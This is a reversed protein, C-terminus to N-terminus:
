NECVILGYPIEPTALMAADDKFLLSEIMFFQGSFRPLFIQVEHNVATGPEFVRDANKESLPDYVFTGVWDSYFAIGMEYGGIWGREDWLNHEDYYAKVKENLERVPLNPRLCESVVDMVGAALNAKDAVDKPPEGVSFTRAANMHYRKHVGSVDVAVTEGAKLKKRTAVAHAANSKGGSLVPMMMAQLEGGAACLARIVEGQVELETVGPRIVDRAASLGATAIRCSEELCAVEAASKVWRVERLVHSADVVEAGAAEFQGQMKEGIVRNPQMAWFEMGVRGKLWGEAKLEDAIFQTGDRYSEKPFYRTDKSVSFTRTVVAERETEFHIFRDHDVHVAIGNGPPWEFPSETHYWMCIFGSIYYMSEPSTLFICDLGDKAMQARVRTLRSAFEAESFPIETEPQFDFYVEDRYTM